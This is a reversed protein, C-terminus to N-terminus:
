SKIKISIGTDSYTITATHGTVTISTFKGRLSGASLIQLTDGAAPSYGTAFNIILMGGTITATNKVSLQALGNLNKSVLVQTTGATQTFASAINLGDKSNIDLIGNVLFFDGNGLASTSNASLTGEELITGGIYTNAGTLHLVGSGRKTLKGNGSIDNRWYDEANFGDLKADMTVSVDGDFRGYGDAAAFLNLRGWGEADDM